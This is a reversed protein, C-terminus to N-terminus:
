RHKVSLAGVKIRRVVRGSSQGSKEGLAANEEGGPKPERHQHYSYYHLFCYFIYQAVRTVRM